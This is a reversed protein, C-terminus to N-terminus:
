PTRGALWGDGEGAGLNYLSSSTPRCTLPAQPNPRKSEDVIIVGTSVAQGQFMWTVTDGKFILQRGSPPLERGDAVLSSLDWTGQLKEVDTKPPAAQIAVALVLNIVSM